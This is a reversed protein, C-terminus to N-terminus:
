IKYGKLTAKKWLVYKNLAVAVPPCTEVDFNKISDLVFFNQWFDYFDKMGKTATSYIGIIDENSLNKNVGLHVVSLCFAQVVAEDYNKCKANTSM